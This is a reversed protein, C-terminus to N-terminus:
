PTVTEFTVTVKKNDPGDDVTVLLYGHTDQKHELRALDYGHHDGYYKKDEYFPAGATGAVIQNLVYNAPWKTHKISMWDYAHDHGAFFYECGYAQLMDVFKDREDPFAAMNDNDGHNTCTFAMEHAFVFIHTAHGAQAKKLANELEILNVHHTHIFQDLAIIVIEPHGPPSWTYSFGEEGPFYTVGNSDLGPKFTALWHKGDPDGHIEHNGRVPLVTLDPAETQVINTWNSFQEALKAATRPNEGVVLDGTFLMFRPKKEDIAHLLNKLIKTNIGTPDPSIAKLDTRDDGAVAFSWSDASAVTASLSLLLATALLWRSPRFRHQSKRM